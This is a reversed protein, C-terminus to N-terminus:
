QEFASGCVSCISDHHLCDAGCSVCRYIRPTELVALPGWHSECDKCTEHLAPPNVGCSSCLMSSIELSDDSIENEQGQEIEWSLLAYAKSYHEAKVMVMLGQSEGIQTAGETQYSHRFVQNRTVRPVIGEAELIRTVVKVDNLSCQTLEVYLNELDANQKVEPNPAPESRGEQLGTSPPSVLEMKCRKCYLSGARFNRGCSPCILM